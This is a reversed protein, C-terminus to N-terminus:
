QPTLTPNQKAYFVSIGTMPPLNCTISAWASGIIGGTPSAGNFDSPGWSFLSTYSGDVAVTKSSYTAEQPRQISGIVGTCTVQRTQGDKTFAALYMNTIAGGEIPTPNVPYQCIVFAGSTASDNSAYIARANFQNPANASTGALKCAGGSVTIYADPHSPAAVAASSVITLAAILGLISRNM